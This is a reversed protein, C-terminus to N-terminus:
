NKTSIPGNRRIRRSEERWGRQERKVGASMNSLSLTSGKCSSAACIGTSAYSWNDCATLRTFSEKPLWWTLWEKWIPPPVWPPTPPSGFRRMKSPCDGTGMGDDHKHYLLFAMQLVKLSVIQFLTLSCDGIANTYHIGKRTTKVYKSEGTSCQINLRWRCHPLFLDSEVHVIQLCQFGYDECM